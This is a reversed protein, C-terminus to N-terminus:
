RGQTRRRADQAGRPMAGLSNSLIPFERRWVALDTTM